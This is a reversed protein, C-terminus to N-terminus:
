LADSPFDTGLSFTVVNLSYSASSDPAATYSLVRKRCISWNLRSQSVILRSVTKTTKKLGEMQIGLRYRAQPVIAAKLDERIWWEVIMMPKRLQMAVTLTM